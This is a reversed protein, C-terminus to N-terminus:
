KRLLGKCKYNLIVVSWYIRSNKILKFKEIKIVSM